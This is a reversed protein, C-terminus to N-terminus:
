DFLSECMFKVGLKWGLVFSDRHSISNLCVESELIKELLAIQKENLQKQLNNKYIDRKKTFERREEYSGQVLEAPYVEGNYFDELIGM